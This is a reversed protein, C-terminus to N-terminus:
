RHAVGKSHMFVLGQLCFGTRVHPCRASVIFSVELIQDAFDLIEDVAYFPPEDVLRFFPMVIYSLSDDIGDVFTDLIPVSHNAPDKYSSFMLAIRSEQDNTQVQKIYVLKGDTIRTADVLLPRYQRSFFSFAVKLTIVRHIKRVPLPTSDEARRWYTGTTLWSPTWKPRLRPRLMYGRSKLFLQRDRWTIENPLLTQYLGGPGLNPRDHTQSHLHAMRPFFESHDTPSQTRSLRPMSEM